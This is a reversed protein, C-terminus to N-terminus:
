LNNVFTDLEQETIQDREYASDAELALANLSAKLMFDLTESPITNNNTRLFVHAQYIEKKLNLLANLNM